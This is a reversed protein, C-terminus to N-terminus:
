VWLDSYIEELNPYPSNEAFIVSAEVRAKIEEEIKQWDAESLLGEKFLQERLQDICDKKKYSEVEEKSRYTAPDSMSHGRYRYTIAELFVPESNTRCYDLAKKVEEYVHLVELGDIQKSPIKYAEGLKWLEPQSSVRHFETGMGYKNNECIFLAPTKWIKALNLAEHFAGQHIAGDGFLCVVAGQTNRLKEAYAVGVAIPIQAGVIGNGGWMGKENDFLHMSGGKGHSCGTARGYFEAMIHDPDIGLCLAYGHDRYGTLLKDKGKEMAECVGINLAEQGIALHCFGGIKKLGYMQGAKEEFRRVMLM